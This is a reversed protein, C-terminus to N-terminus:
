FSIPVRVTIQVDPAAETLGGALSFNLSTRDTLRYSGGLLISGIQTTTSNALAQGDLKTKFICNHEYGLSISARENLALGMGLNFGVTDGPEVKGLGSINRDFNYLYSVSGFFVAPDSPLIATLTPQLAWFGSGTPLDKPLGTEEDVAVEFPDKGTNSKVRLGAIFIPWGGQPMNLQYRMGFEVDGVDFGDANFVGETSTPTALPRTTSNDKRYVYPVKAELELRNTLGYRGAMAGIFTYRNVSRVDILGITVAPIITYGVLAVRTSSSYTGQLSPELVFRGRPTLVGQREFIAEIERYEQPTPARGVPRTPASSDAQGRVASADDEATTSSQAVLTGSTGSDSGTGAYGGLQSPALREKGLRQDIRAAYAQLQKQQEIIQKEQQQLQKSQTELLHRLEQLDQDRTAASNGAVMPQQSAVPISPDNTAMAPKSSGIRGADASMVAVINGTQRVKLSAVPVNSVDIVLRVKEPYRGIRINQFPFAYSLFKDGFETSAGYLDLVFRSPGSLIFYDFKKIDSSSSLILSGDKYEVKEIIVSGMANSKSEWGASDTLGGNEAFVVAAFMSISSFVLFLVGALRSM